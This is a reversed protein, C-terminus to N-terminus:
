AYVIDETLTVKAPICLQTLLRKLVLNVMYVLIHLYWAHVFSQVCVCVCM